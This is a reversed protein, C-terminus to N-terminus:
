TTRRAADDLRRAMAAMADRLEPPSVQDFAWPLLALHAAIAGWSHAGTTLLCRGDDIPQVVATTSPVHAAVEVAPAMIRVKARCPYVTTTVSRTVFQAADPPESRIFGFTTVHHAKIRDVRLTRWDSRGRDWCLLYWRRGVHVLQYPEVERHSVAGAHDAYELRIRVSDRCAAALEGLHGPHVEEDGRPVAVSASRLTQVQSRLRHPLVTELKVLARAAAGGMVEGDATHLAAAIAVAEEDDLLLPPVVAGASLRYGDATSADVPYGLTRLREVDRRITRTTVGLRDALVPGSWERREQLLSLLKLLRASTEIVRENHRIM